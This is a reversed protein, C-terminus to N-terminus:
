ALVARFRRSFTALVLSPGAAAGGAFLFRVQLELL